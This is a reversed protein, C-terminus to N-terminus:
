FSCSDKAFITEIGWGAGQMSRLKVNTSDAIDFAMLYETDVIYLYDGKITFRAMSGQTSTSGDNSLFDEFESCGTWLGASLMVLTLTLSLLRKIMTTPTPQKRQPYGGSLKQAKLGTADDTNVPFIEVPSVLEPLLAKQRDVGVRGIHLFGGQLWWTLRTTWM